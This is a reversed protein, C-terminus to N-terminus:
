RNLRFRIKVTFKVAQPMGNIIYPEYVWQRIANIAAENLFPDGTIIRVRNVRGYIDTEAEIIVDAERRVKLALAPYVPKIKKILKPNKFISVPMRMTGRYGDGNGDGTGDDWLDLFNDDIAGEVDDGSGQKNLSFEPEPIEDPIEIPAIMHSTLKKEPKNTKIGKDPKRGPKRGHKIGPTTLKPMSLLHVSLNKIEPMDSATILPYIILAAIVSSHIILSAPITILSRFNKRKETLEKFFENRQTKMEVEKVSFISNESLFPM